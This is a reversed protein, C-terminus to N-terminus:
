TEIFGQAMRPWNSAAKLPQDLMILGGGERGHKSWRCFLSQVDPLHTEGLSWFNIATKHQVFCFEKEWGGMMKWWIFSACITMGAWDDRAPLRGDWYYPRPVAETIGHYAQPIVFGHFSGNRRSIDYTEMHIDILTPCGLMAMAPNVARPRKAPPAEPGDHPNSGVSTWGLYLWSTVMWNRITIIYIYCSIVMTYIHIYIHTHKYIYIYKLFFCRHLWRTIICGQKDM